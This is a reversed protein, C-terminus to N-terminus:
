GNSFCRYYDKVRPTLLIVIWFLPLAIVWIIRWPSITLYPNNYDGHYNLIPISQIAMYFLLFYVNFKWSRKWKAIKQNNGSLLYYSFVLPVIYPMFPQWGTYPMITEELGRPGFSILLGLVSVIFSFVMFVKFEFPASYFNKRFTIWSNNNM